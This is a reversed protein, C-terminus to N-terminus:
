KGDLGDLGVLCAEVVGMVVDMGAGEEGNEFVKLKGAGGGVGGGVVFGGCAIKLLRLADVEIGMNGRMYWGLGEFFAGNVGVGTALLKLGRRYFGEIDAREVTVTIAKLSTGAPPPPSFVLQISTRGGTGGAAMTTELWSELLSKLTESDLPLPLALTDFTTSLYNILIERLLKPLRTLLLPLLTTPGSPTMKRGPPPSLLFSTYTINEYIFEIVVGRPTDEDNHSFPKWTVSKPRGARTLTTDSQDDIRVNRLIDGRLLSLLSRTHLKPDESSGPAPPSDPSIPPFSNLPSLRHLTYTTNYLPSTM